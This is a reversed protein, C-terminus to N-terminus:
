KNTSWATGGQQAEEADAWSCFDVRVKSLVACIVCQSLTTVIDDPRCM